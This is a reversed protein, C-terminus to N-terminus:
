GAHEGQGARQHLGTPVGVIGSLLRKWRELSGNRTFREDLMARARKGMAAAEERNAALSQLADALGADDGCAVVHGCDHAEVLRAFEGDPATVAIIPRGAAAVGYFKSPLVLGEFQPKLSLWHVDAAGLSQALLERSQYPRFVFSDLGEETARKVLAESHFGGGVFLFRIDTRGRLRRAAGVLTEAEHARGLNGSYGVVFDNDAFGWESRLDSTGRAVPSVAEDDTWNPIIAIAADEVGQERLRLAMQEGIVVNVAAQRLFRNRLARVVRGVPGDLVGIGMQVAVEPYLDQLWNILRAGRVGAVLGAAVSVLPPDTKAIVVDGRRALGFLKVSMSPYYSLYDLMRGLITARGFRSTWVRHVTVGEIEERSALRAGPDAYLSRSAIVQVDWGDAALFQALDTLIQATASHDPHYFRNVFILRPM